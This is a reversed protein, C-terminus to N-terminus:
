NGQLGANFVRETTPYRREEQNANVLWAFPLCEPQFLLLFVSLVNPSFSHVRDKLRRWRPVDM